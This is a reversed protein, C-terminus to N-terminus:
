ASCASYPEIMSKQLLAIQLYLAGTFHRFVWYTKVTEHIVICHESHCPRSSYSCLCHGELLQVLSSFPLHVGFGNQDNSDYYDDSILTRVKANIKRKIRYDCNDYVLCLIALCFVNIM